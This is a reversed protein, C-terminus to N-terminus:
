NLDYFIIRWGEDANKIAAYIKKAKENVTIHYGENDLKIKKVMNGEWDFILIINSCRSNGKGNKNFIKKDAYLAYVNESDTALDIYGITNNNDPIVRNFDGDQVAKFFLLISLYINKM